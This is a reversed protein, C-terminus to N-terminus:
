RFQLKYLRFQFIKNRGALLQQRRKASKKKCPEIINHDIDGEKFEPGVYYCLAPFFIMAFFLSSIITVIMLVGFKHLYSYQCLFLFIGAVFSTVAGNLITSGIQQFCSDVRNKKKDFVSEVYQHSMHVIYDVSFGIFVILGISEAIGLSWNLIKISSMITAIVLSISVVSYLSITYNRTTILLIVFAFFISCAMGGMANRFM